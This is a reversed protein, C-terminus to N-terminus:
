NKEINKLKALIMKSLELRKVNDVKITSVQTAKVPKSYINKINKTSTLVPSTDNTPIDHIKRKKIEASIKYETAINKNSGVTACSGM